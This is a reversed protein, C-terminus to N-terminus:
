IAGPLFRHASFFFKHLDKPFIDVPLAGVGKQIVQFVLGIEKGARGRGPVVPGIGSPQTVVAEVDVVTKLVVQGPFPDLLEVPQLDGGLADGNGSQEMIETLHPAILRPGSVHLVLDRPGPLLHGGVEKLIGQGITM